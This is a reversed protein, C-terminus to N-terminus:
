GGPRRRVLGRLIEPGSQRTRAQKQRITIGLGIDVLDAAEVIARRDIAILVLARVFPVDPRHRLVHFPAM